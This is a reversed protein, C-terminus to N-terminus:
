WKETVLACSAAADEDRDSDRGGRGNHASSNSLVAEAEARDRNEAARKARKKFSQVDKAKVGLAKAAEQFPWKMSGSRAVDLLANWFKKDRTPSRSILQNVYTRAFIARDTEKAHSAAADDIPASKHRASKRYSDVILDQAVKHLFNVIGPIGPEELQKKGYKALAESIVDDVSTFHPLRGQYGRLRHRLQAVVEKWEENSLKDFGNV